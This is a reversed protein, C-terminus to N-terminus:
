KRSKGPPLGFKKRYARSFHQVSGYGLQMAIEKISTGSLLQEKAQTLKVDNLYGYVTTNFVEKFGNKLKYENLGAIRSLEPLSPPTDLHLLLYDRAQLIRGKDYDSKLVSTSTTTAQRAREFTEAQLTLLELCKAELFLLKLGGQFRCNVIDNICAQMALTIPLGRPSLEAPKGAAVEDAFRRLVECSDQALELFHRSMFHIEFFKYGQRLKHDFDVQGDFEPVYMINQQQPIFFHTRGSVKNTVTSNGALSFHLEITDPVDVARMRVHHRRLVLDGYIILINPLVVQLLEADGFPFSLKQRYETVLPRKLLEESVHEGLQMWHAAELGYEDCVIMGM